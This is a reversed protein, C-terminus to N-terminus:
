VREAHRWVGPRRRELLPVGRQAFAVVRDMGGLVLPHTALRDIDELLARRRHIGLESGSGFRDVEPVHQQAFLTEGERLAVFEDGAEIAIELGVMRRKELGVM